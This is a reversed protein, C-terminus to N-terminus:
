RIIETAAYTQLSATTGATRMSFSSSHQPGHLEQHYLEWDLSLGTGAIRNRALSLSLQAHKQSGREYKLSLHEARGLTNKLKLSGEVSGADHTDLNPGHSWGLEKVFLICWSM